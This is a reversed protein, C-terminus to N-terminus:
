SNLANMRINAKRVWLFCKDQRKSKKKGKEKFKGKKTSELTNNKKKNSSGLSGKVAM